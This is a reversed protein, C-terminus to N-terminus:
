NAFDGITRLDRINRAIMSRGSATCRRPVQIAVDGLAWVDLSFRFAVGESNCPAIIAFMSCFLSRTRSNQSSKVVLLFKFFGAAKEILLDNVMM